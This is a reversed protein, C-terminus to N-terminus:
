CDRHDRCKWQWFCLGDCSSRWIAPDAVEIKLTSTKLLRLICTARPRLKYSTSQTACSFSSLFLSSEQISLDNTSFSTKVSGYFLGYSTELSVKRTLSSQCEEYSDGKVSFYDANTNPIGRIDKESVKTLDFIIKKISVGDAYEGFVDYGSGLYQLAINEM